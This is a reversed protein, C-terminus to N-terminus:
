ADGRLVYKLARVIGHIVGVARASPLGRRPLINQDNAVLRSAAQTTAVVGPSVRRRALRHRVVQSFGM